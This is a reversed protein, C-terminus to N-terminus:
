FCLESRKIISDQLGKSLDVFYASYGAVRVLLDPHNEPYKQADILTESDIVNFQIQSKGLDGWSRLYGMFINKMEGELSSPHFKQNLLHNHTKETSIRAASNLVATPGNQDMGFLPSLTADSLAEGNVRGDPTAPVMAGAGYTVSIGSGDGRLPYGFRNKSRALVESTRHHVQAAIEDAYENDNGYKPADIILQHINEYGKWNAKMAKLLEEMTISKDDFVTKKIATIADAM